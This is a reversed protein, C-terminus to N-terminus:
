SCIVFCFKVCFLCFNVNKSFLKMFCLRDALTFRSLNPKIKCNPSGASFCSLPASTFVIFSIATAVCRAPKESVLQLCLCEASNKCPLVCVCVYKCLSHISMTNALSTALIGCKTFVAKCIM